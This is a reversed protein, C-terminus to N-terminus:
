ESCCEYFRYLAHHSTFTTQRGGPQQDRNALVWLPRRFDFIHVIRRVLGFRVENAPNPLSGERDRCEANQLRHLITPFRGEKSCIRDIIAM